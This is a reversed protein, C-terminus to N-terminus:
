ARLGNVAEARAADIEDAEGPGGSWTTAARNWDARRRMWCTTSLRKLLGALLACRGEHIV